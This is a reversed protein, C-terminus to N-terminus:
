RMRRASIHGGFTQCTSTTFIARAVLYITTTSALSWRTPGIPMISTSTTAHVTSSAYTIQAMRSAPAQQITASVDSLSTTFGTVTTTAACNFAGSGRVDWDGATLSISTINLATNTTLAQATGITIASEIFEGVNGATANDNTATGPIQGTVYAGSTNYLGDAAAPGCLSLLLLAALRRM